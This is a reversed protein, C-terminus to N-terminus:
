LRTAEQAVSERTQLERQSLTPTTNRAMEGTGSPSRMVRKWPIRYKTASPVPMLGVEGHVFKSLINVAGVGDRHAVLGCAPCHYVRGRPKYRNKCSPCTQSSYAENVDDVVEIGRAAAKYTIYRRLTGHSWQSIKQQSPKALRKGDGIDRINGLALTKTEKDVAVDVIEHSTKHLLDRVKKAQAALFRNIRRQLRWWRRSGKEFHSQKSRLSALRKNTYQKTARLERNTVMVTEQGDSLACPHIEGFDGALITEGSAQAPELQDHTTIHWQYLRSSKNYVLEVQALTQKLLHEPIHVPIPDHGRALSLLMVGDKIRIGTNKWTTSRYTKAWHPYKAQEDGADRLAKATKCAEYFGQQAADISHSHLIPEGYQNLYDNLQEGTKPKIWLGIANYVDYHSDMVQTYIRGSERNLRDAVKRDLACALIYTRIM